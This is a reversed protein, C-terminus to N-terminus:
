SGAHFVGFNGLGGKFVFNKFSFGGVLTRGIRAGPQQLILGGGCLEWGGGWALPFFTIDPDPDPAPGLGPKPVPDPAPDPYVEPVPDPMEGSKPLHGPLEFPFSPSVDAAMCSGGRSGAGFLFFVFSPKGGCYLLMLAARALVEM